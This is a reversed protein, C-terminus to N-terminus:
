ETVLLKKVVLYQASSLRIQYMGSQLQDAEIDLSHNVNPTAIGDYLEQVLFGEMSYMDVRLRMNQTVTFGLLSWDNTPNPQLNTVRIPTKGTTLDGAGGIVVPTHDDATQGGLNGSVGGDTCEEANVTFSTSFKRDNGCDDMATWTRNVSWPLCCDLDGFIDGSGMVPTGNFMGSYFLWGSYGFNGNQNNAGEGIQLAYFQNTPMHTISLNSGSYAGTGTLTGSLMLRFHWEDHHDDIESGCDLKYSTEFDQDSWDDWDMAEGYTVQIIWGGGSGDLATVEQSLSWTGDTNNEVLGGNTAAYFESGGGPLAFLRLNHPDHGSCSEGDEFASPVASTCYYAVDESPAYSGIFEQRFDIFVDSDCGDTAEVECIAPLMVTGFNDECCVDQNIGNDLGCAFTFQPAITDEVTVNQVYTAVTDNGCEDAAMVTFTRQFTYGGEQQEDCENTTIYYDECGGLRVNPNSYSDGDVFSENFTALANAM